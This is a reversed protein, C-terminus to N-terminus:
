NNAAAIIIDTHDAFSYPLQRHIRFDLEWPTVGEVAPIGVTIPIAIGLHFHYSKWPHVLDM